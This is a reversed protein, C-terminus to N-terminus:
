RTLLILLVRMVLYALAMHCIAAVPKPVGAGLRRLPASRPGTPVPGTRTM